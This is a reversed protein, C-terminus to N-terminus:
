VELMRASPEDPAALCYDCSPLLPCDGYPEFIDGAYSALPGSPFSQVFISSSNSTYIVGCGVDGEHASMLTQM